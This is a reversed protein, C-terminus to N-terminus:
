QSEIWDQLTDLQTQLAEVHQELSTVKQDHQILLDEMDSIQVSDILGTQTITFVKNFSTVEQEPGVNIFQLYPVGNNKQSYVSINPDSSDPCILVKHHYFILNDNAMHKRMTIGDNDHTNDGIFESRGLTYLTDEITNGNSYNPTYGLKGAGKIAVSGTTNLTPPINNHAPPQVYITKTM